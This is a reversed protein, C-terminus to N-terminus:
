PNRRRIVIGLGLLVAGVILPVITLLAILGGLSQDNLAGSLGHPEGMLLISCGGGFLMFLGGVIIFLVSLARL